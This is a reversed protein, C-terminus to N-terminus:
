GKFYDKIAKCAGEATLVGLANKPMISLIAGLLEKEPVKALENKIVEKTNDPQPWSTFFYMLLAQKFAVTQASNNSWVENDGDGAGSFQESQGTKIDEIEWVGHCRVCPKSVVERKGTLDGYHADTIHCKVMRIVLKLKRCANSYVYFVQDAKTHCYLLGQADKNFASTPMVPNQKMIELKKELLGHPKFDKTKTQGLPDFKKKKRKKAPTVRTIKPGNKKVVKKKSKKAKKKAM